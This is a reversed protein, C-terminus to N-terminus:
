KKKRDFRLMGIIISGMNFCETLVGGWSQNVLNYILWLPSSPFSLLRTIKPNSIGFAVTTLIMASMPLLTLPGNWTYVGAGVCVLSFFVLWWNSSAWKKDKFIFVISRAFGISNLLAGTYAALMFYHVTFCLNALLQLLVIKKHENQQFSWVALCFAIIGIVQAM